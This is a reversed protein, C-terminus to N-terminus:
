WYVVVSGPVSGVGTGVCFDAWGDGNIDKILSTEGEGTGISAPAVVEATTSAEISGSKSALKAGDFITFQTGIKPGFVVDPTADGIISATVDEGPLSGGIILGGAQTTAALNLILHTAFPGATPSGFTLYGTGNAASGTNDAPNGLGVPPLSAIRPAVSTLISGLHTGAAGSLVADASAIPIAGATGTQGHFAYVASVGAAARGPASVVLTTGTTTSYYHGIGLVRYGFYPTGLTSDGDIVIEATGPLSLSAFGSSKGPIIVVRGVNTNFGRAGLAFDDIGDGTFDGLRTISTGLNSSMYTPTTGTIVYDANADTLTAPWTTRGKYIYVKLGPPDAIAIDPHGDNDVDGIQGVALGFGTTAGTFTVSPAAATVAASGFFIYAKGALTTGVLVDSLGDGNLDREASISFGLAENTTAGSTFTTTNFHAAVATTTAMLTGVHNNASDTGTVAFYYGNEIYLTVTMGDTAGPMAPPGVYPIATTVATDDFNAATIPVKAYRVQYGSVPAGNNAPATWLL